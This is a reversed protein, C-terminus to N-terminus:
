VGKWRGRVPRGRKGSICDQRPQEEAMAGKKLNGIFLVTKSTPLGWVKVDEQPKTTDRIDDFSSEKDKAVPVKWAQSSISIAQKFSRV